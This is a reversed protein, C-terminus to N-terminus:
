DCSVPPFDVKAADVRRKHRHSWEDEGEKINQETTVAHKAKVGEVIYYCWTTTMPEKERNESTQFVIPDMKPAPTREMVSCTRILLISIMALAVIIVNNAARDTLM